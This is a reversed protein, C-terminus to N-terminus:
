SRLELAKLRDNLCKVECNFMNHCDSALFQAAKALRKAHLTHGDDITTQISWALSDLWALRELAVEFHEIADNAIDVATSQKNM